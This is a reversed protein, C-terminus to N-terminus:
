DKITAQWSRKPDIALPEPACKPCRAGDVHRVPDFERNLILEAIAPTMRAGDGM